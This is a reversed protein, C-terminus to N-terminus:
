HELASLLITQLSIKQQSDRLYEHGDGLPSSLVLTRDIIGPLQPIEKQTAPGYNSGFVDWPFLIDFCVSLQSM